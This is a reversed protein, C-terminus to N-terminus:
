NVKHLLVEEGQSNIGYLDKVIDTDTKPKLKFSVINTVDLKKFPFNFSFGYNCDKESFYVNGNTTLILLNGDGACCIPRVAINAVKEKDFILSEENTNLNTAYLKADKIYINYKTLELENSGLNTVLLEKLLYIESETNKSYSTVYFDKQYIIEEPQYTINEILVYHTEEENTLLQSKNTVVGEPLKNNTTCEKLYDEIIFNGGIIEQNFCIYTYKRNTLYLYTVLIATLIIIIITIIIKKNKM